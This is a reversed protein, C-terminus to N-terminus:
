FVGEGGEPQARFPSRLVRALVVLLVILTGGIPLAAYPWTM